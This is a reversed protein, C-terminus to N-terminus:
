SLVAEVPIGYFIFKIFEASNERKCNPTIQPQRSTLCMGQIHILCKTARMIFLFNGKVSM